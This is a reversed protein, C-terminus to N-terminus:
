KVPRMFLVLMTDEWEGAMNIFYGKSLYGWVERAQRSAFVLLGFTLCHKSQCYGSTRQGSPMQTGLLHSAMWGYLSRAEWALRVVGLM